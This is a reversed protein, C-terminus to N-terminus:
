YCNLLDIKNDKTVNHLSTFGVNNQAHVIIDKQALLLKFRETDDSRVSYHLPTSRFIDRANANILNNDLIYKLAESDENNVVEHILPKTYSYRDDEISKRDTVPKSTISNSQFQHESSAFSQLLSVIHEYMRKYQSSKENSTADLLLKAIQLPTRNQEDKIVINIDKHTLLAQVCTTWCDEVALHLPTNWYIETANVDTESHSLLINVFSECDNDNDYHLPIRRKNDEMNIEIDEHLLLLSILEQNTTIIAFHLPSQVDKDQINLNIDKSWFLM